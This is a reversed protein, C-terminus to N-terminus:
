PAVEYTSGSETYTNGEGVAAIATDGDGHAGYDLANIGEITSVTRSTIINVM